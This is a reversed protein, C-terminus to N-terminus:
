YFQWQILNAPVTRHHNHFFFFQLGVLFSSLVLILFITPCAESNQTMQKGRVDEQLFRRGTHDRVLTLATVEDDCCKVIGGNPYDRETAPIPCPSGGVELPPSLAYYPPSCGRHGPDNEDPDVDTRVMLPKCDAIDWLQVIVEDETIQVRAPAVPAPPDDRPLLLLLLILLALLILLVAGIIRYAKRRSPRCWGAAAGKPNTDDDDEM